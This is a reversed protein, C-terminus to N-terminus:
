NANPACLAEEILKKCFGSFSETPHAMLYVQWAQELEETLNVTRPYSPQAM